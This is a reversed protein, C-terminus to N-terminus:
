ADVKCQKIADFITNIFDANTPIEIYHSGISVKISILENISAIKRNTYRIESVDDDCRNALDVQLWSMNSCESCVNDYMKDIDDTDFKYMKM